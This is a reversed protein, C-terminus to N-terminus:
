SSTSAIESSSSRRHTTAPTSGARTATSPSPHRVDPMTQASAPAPTIPRSGHTRPREPRSTPRSALCALRPDGDPHRPLRGSAARGRGRRSRQRHGIERRRRRPGRRPTRSRTGTTARPSRSGAPPAPLRRRRRRRPRRPVPRRRRPRLRRRFPRPHRHRRAAAANALVFVSLAASPSCSPRRRLSAISRLCPRDEWSRWGGPALSHELDSPSRGGPRSPSGRRAGRGAVRRPDRRSRAPRNM